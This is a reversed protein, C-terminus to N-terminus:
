EDADDDIVDIDSGEELSEDFVEGQMEKVMKQLSIYEHYANKFKRIAIQTGRSKKDIKFKQKAEERLKDSKLEARDRNKMAEHLDSQSLSESQRSINELSTQLSQLLEKTVKGNNSRSVSSLNDSDNNNYHKPTNVVAEVCDIISQPNSTDVGVDDPLLRVTRNIFSDDDKELFIKFMYFATMDDPIMTPKVFNIMTEPDNGGSAKWNKFVISFRSRVVAYRARLTDATRRSISSHNPDFKSLIPDSSFQFQHPPHYSKLNNFLVAIVNKWCDVMPSGEAKDIQQRSALHFVPNTKELYQKDMLIALLRADEYTSFSTVGSMNYPREQEDLGGQQRYVYYWALIKGLVVEKRSNISIHRWNWDVVNGDETIKRKKRGIIKETSYAKYKLKKALIRLKDLVMEKLESDELIKEDPSLETDNCYYISEVLETNVLPDPDVVCCDLLNTRVDKKMAEDDKGDLLKLADEKGDNDDSSNDFCADM